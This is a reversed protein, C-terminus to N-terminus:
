RRSGKIMQLTKEASSVGGNAVNYQSSSTTKQVFHEAELLISPALYPPIVEDQKLEALSVRLLDSDSLMLILDDLEKLEKESLNDKKSKRVSILFFLITAYDATIIIERPKVQTSNDEGIFNNLSFNVVFPKDQYNVIRQFSMGTTHSEGKMFFAKEDTFPIIEFQQSYQDAVIM